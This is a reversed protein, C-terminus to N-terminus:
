RITYGRYALRSVQLRLSVEARLARARAHRWPRKTAWSEAARAYADRTTALAARIRMHADRELPSVQLRGLRGYARALADSFARAAVNSRAERPAARVRRQIRARTRNLEEFISSLAKAYVADAGLPYTTAVRLSVTKWMRECERAFKRADVPDAYCVVTLIGKTTPAVILTLSRDVGRPRISRYHYASGVGGLAVRDRAPTRSLRGLFERSLMASGSASSFGALVGSGDPRKRELAVASALKIGPFEPASDVQEWGDPYRITIDGQSASNPLRQPAARWPSYGLVFAVVPLVLALTTSLVVARPWHFCLLGIAGLLAITTPVFVPLHYGLAPGLAAVFGTLAGVAALIAVLRAETLQVVRHDCARGRARSWPVQPSHQSVRLGEGM